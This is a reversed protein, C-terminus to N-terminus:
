GVDFMPREPPKIGKIQDVWGRWADQPVESVQLGARTTREDASTWCIRGNFCTMAGNLEIEGQVEMAFDFPEWDSSPMQIGIGGYSADVVSVELRIQNFIVIAKENCEFRPNLRNENV